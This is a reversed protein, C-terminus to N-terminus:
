FAIFMGLLMLEVRNLWDGNRDESVKYSLRVVTFPGRSASVSKLHWTDAYTKAAGESRTVYTITCKSMANLAFLMAVAGSDHYGSITRVASLPSSPDHADSKTFVRVGWTVADYDILQAVGSPIEFRNKEPSQRQELISRALGKDDCLLLLDPEPSSVWFGVRSSQDRYLEIDKIRGDLQLDPKSLVELVEDRPLELFSCGDFSTELGLGVGAIPHFRRGVYVGSNFRSASIGAWGRQVEFFALGSYDAVARSEPAGTNPLNSAYIVQVNAPLWGAVRRYVASGSSPLPGSYLALVSGSLLIAIRTVASQSM